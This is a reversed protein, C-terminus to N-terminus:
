LRVSGTWEGSTCYFPQSAGRAVLQQTTEKTFGLGGLPINAKLVASEVRKVAEKM